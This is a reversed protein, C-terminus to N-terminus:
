KGGREKNWEATSLVFEMTKTVSDRLGGSQASLKLFLRFIISTALCFVDSWLRENQSGM